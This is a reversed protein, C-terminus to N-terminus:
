ADDELPVEWARIEREQWETLIGSERQFEALTQGRREAEQRFFEETSESVSPRVHGSGVDHGSAPRERIDDWMEPVHTGAVHQRVERGAEEM